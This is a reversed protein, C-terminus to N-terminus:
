GASVDWVLVQLVGVSMFAGDGAAQVVQALQQVLLSVLLYSGVSHRFIVCSVCAAALLLIFVISSYPRSFFKLSNFAM